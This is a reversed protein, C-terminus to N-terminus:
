EALGEVALVHMGDAEFTKGTVLIGPVGIRDLLNAPFRVGNVATIVVYAKGDKDSIFILPSGAAVCFKVCFAHDYGHTHTGLFCNADTLEGRLHVIEGRTPQGALLDINGQRAMRQAKALDSVLPQVQAFPMSNLGYEDGFQFACLVIVCALALLAMAPIKNRRTRWTRAQM